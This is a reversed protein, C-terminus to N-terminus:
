ATTPSLTDPPSAGQQLKEKVERRWQLIAPHKLCASGKTEWVDRWFAAINEAQHKTFMHRPRAVLMRTGRAHFDEAAKQKKLLLKQERIQAGKVRVLDKYKQLRSKMLAINLTAKPWLAKLQKIRAKRKKSTGRRGRKISRLQLEAELWGVVRRIQQRKAKLNQLRKRASSLLGNHESELPLVEDHNNHSEGESDSESDSDSPNEYVEGGRRSAGGFKVVAEIGAYLLCNISWLDKDEDELAEWLNLLENDIQTIVESSLQAEKMPFRCRGSWDDPSKERMTCFVTELTEKLLEQPPPFYM